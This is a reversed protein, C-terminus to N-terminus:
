LIYGIMVLFFVAVPCNELVYSKEELCIWNATVELCGWKTRGISINGLM